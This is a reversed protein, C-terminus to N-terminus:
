QLYFTLGIAADVANNNGTVVNFLGIGNFGDLAHERFNVAGNTVRNASITGGNVRANLRQRSQVRVSTDGNRGRLEDLHEAEIVGLALFDDPQIQEDALSNGAILALGLSMM